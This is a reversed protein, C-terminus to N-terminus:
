VQPEQHPNTPSRSRQASAIRRSSRPQTDSTTDRRRATDGDDGVATWTLTASTETTSAVALTTVGAPPIGEPPLQTSDNPVNSLGSWNPVGDAVKLAFYYATGADLGTVTFTEAYGSYKPAPEGTAQTASAFTAATIISTSYRLDYTAATGTTGDDGVATWTLTASTQTTSGVALTTM